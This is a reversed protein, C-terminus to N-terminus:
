KGTAGRVDFRATLPPAGKFSLTVPVQAGQKLSPKPDMCMLHYGGPSFSIDGGGPVDVAAVDQMSSMGGKDESKHLMLMGCAPTDAGTLQVTAKGSNHLIFYGGAPLNGPLLRIWGDKLSLPSPAQAMASCPALLLLAALSVSNRM